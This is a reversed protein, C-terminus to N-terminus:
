PKTYTLNFKNAIRKAKDEAMFGERSWNYDKDHLVQMQSLFDTNLDHLVSDKGDEEMEELLCPVGGEHDGYEKLEEDTMLSGVACMTGNYVCHGKEKDFSRGKLSRLHKMMKDFAEQNTM